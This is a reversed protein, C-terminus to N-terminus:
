NGTRRARWKSHLMAREILQLKYLNTSLIASETWKGTANTATPWSDIYKRESASQRINEVCCIKIEKSTPIHPTNSHELANTHKKKAECTILHLYLFFLDLSIGNSINRNISELIELIWHIVKVNQLGNVACLMWSIKICQTSIACHKIRYFMCFPRECEAESAALRNAWDSEANTSTTKKETFKCRILMANNAARQWCATEGDSWCHLLTCFLCDRVSNGVLPNYNDIPQKTSMLNWAFCFNNNSEWCVLVSMAGAAFFCFCFHFRVVDCRSDFLLFNFEFVRHLLSFLVSGFFFSSSLLLLPM